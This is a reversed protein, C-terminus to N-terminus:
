DPTVKSYENRFKGEKIIETSGPAKLHKKVKTITWFLPYKINCKILGNPM